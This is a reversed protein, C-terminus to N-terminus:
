SSDADAASSVVSLKQSTLSDRGDEEGVSGVAVTVAGWPTGQGPPQGGEEAQPCGQQPPEAWPRLRLQGQTVSPNSPAPNSCGWGLAGDRFGWVAQHNGQLWGLAAPALGPPTAVAGVAAQGRPWALHPVVLARHLPDVIPM